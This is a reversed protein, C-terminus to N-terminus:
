SSFLNLGGGWSGVWIRGQQDEFTRYANNSSISTRDKPDHTFRTFTSTAPDFEFLGLSWTGLLLKGTQSVVEIHLFGAFGGGKLPYQYTNVIQAQQSLKVLSQGTTAWMTGDAAPVLSSVRAKDLM